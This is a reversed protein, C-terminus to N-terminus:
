ATAGAHLGYDAKTKEVGKALLALGEDAKGQRCYLIGQLEWLRMEMQKDTKNSKKAEELAAIREEAAEIDNKKFYVM